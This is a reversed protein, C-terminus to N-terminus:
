PRLDEERSEELLSLPEPAAAEIQIMEEDVVQRPEAEQEGQLPSCRDQPLLDLLPIGPLRWHISESADRDKAVQSEEQVQLAFSSNEPPFRRIKLERDDASVVFLAQPPPEPLDVAVAALIGDAM